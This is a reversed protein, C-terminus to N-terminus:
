RVRIKQEPRGCVNSVRHGSCGDVGSRHVVRAHLGADPQGARQAAVRLQGTSSERLLLSLRLTSPSAKDHSATLSHLPGVRNFSEGAQSCRLLFLNTLM